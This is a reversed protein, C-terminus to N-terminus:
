GDNWRSHDRRCQRHHCRVAFTRTQADSMRSLFSIQGKATVGNILRVDAQQGLALLDVEQEAVFGAVKVQTLDIVDACISGPTMLTGIEATDSELVGDFPAIIDLQAIDWQVRDVRAQAAQLQAERTKLTTAATFGKKRLQKAAAAEAQAEALGAQAESLEAARIGPNLRCLVQGKTVRSGNPLAESIVRGTTESAVMVNRLAETRGRVVLTGQTEQANSQLVVVPVPKEQAQKATPGQPTESQVEEASTPVAVAAAADTGMEHRLVFWYWLGAAILLAAIVSTLRM